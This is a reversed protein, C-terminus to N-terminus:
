QCATKANNLVQVMRQDRDLLTRDASWACVELTNLGNTEGTSDWHYELPWANSMARLRGNIRLSVWSVPTGPAVEVAVSVAGSVVEDGGPRVLRVLPGVPAKPANPVPSTAPVPAGASPPPIECLTTSGSLLSALIPCSAPALQGMAQQYKQRTSYVALINSLGRGPATVSRGWAYLASSNGGDLAMAQVANLHQCVYALNRLSIDKEITLLILVNDPRLAVASRPASGLVRPDRFGEARADITIQGNTLLRPGACLVSRFGTWDPKGQRPGPLMCVQNDPTLCLATGAVGKFLLNGSIAVDGVPMNSRLCFYTGNIAADPQLRGLFSGWRELGVPFRQAAVPTIVVDPDNLNVTVFKVPFNNVVLYNLQVSEPAALAMAACLLMLWAGAMHIWHQGWRHTM